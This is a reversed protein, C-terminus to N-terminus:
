GGNRHYGPSVKAPSRRDQNWHLMRSHWLSRLLGAHDRRSPNYTELWAHLVDSQRDRRSDYNKRTKRGVSDGSRWRLRRRQGGDPVFCM